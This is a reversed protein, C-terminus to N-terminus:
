ARVNMAVRQEFQPKGAEAFHRSMEFGVASRFREAAGRVFDWMWETVLWTRDLEEAAMATTLKGAMNDVVLDGPETLYRILFKIMKKPFPAGHTPLGLREADRRYQRHDACSHGYHLVNRPIRGETPNAFSGPHLSYAGDAFSAARKEGGAAILKLQRESHPQLVRQNNARVRHPDNTMWILPEWGVNLQFRKKSAWAIPGPAKSFNVWPIRDMLKLGMRDELAIIMREMYTSRAPSGVEFIDNSVNLILSGGPALNAVIPEM